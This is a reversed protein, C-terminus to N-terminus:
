AGRAVIYTVGEPIRGDAWTGARREDSDTFDAESAPWYYEAQGYRAVLFATVWDVPMGWSRVKPGHIVSMDAAWHELWEPVPLEDTYLAWRALRDAAIQRHAEQLSTAGAALDVERTRLEDQTPRRM